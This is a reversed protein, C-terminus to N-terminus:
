CEAHGTCGVLAAVSLYEHRLFKRRVAQMESQPSEELLRCMELACTVVEAFREESCGQRTHQPWVLPQGILRSSVLAAAAVQLSPTFRLMHTDVLGLELLYQTLFRCKKLTNKEQYQDLFHVATPRCLRFELANLLTAEMALIREKSCAEQTMLVFDRVDPPEIEEFKAAAFLCVVVVLQLDKRRVERLALFSDLLSVALFLTETRLRYKDQVEVLWDAALAREEADLEPQFQLYDLHLLCDEDRGLKSFIDAVYEVVSQPDDELESPAQPSLQLRALRRDLRTRKPIPLSINLKMSSVMLHM